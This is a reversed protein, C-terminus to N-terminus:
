NRKNTVSGVCNQTMAPEVNIWILAILPILGIYNQKSCTSSQYSFDFGFINSVDIKQHAYEMM